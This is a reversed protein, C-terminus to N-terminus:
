TEESAKQFAKIAGKAHIRVVRNTDSESIKELLAEAKLKSKFYNIAVRYGNKAFLEACSAGIGRAAGTILVTKKM